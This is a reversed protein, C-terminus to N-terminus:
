IATGGQCLQTESEDVYCNYETNRLGLRRHLDDYDLDYAYKHLELDNATAATAPDAM